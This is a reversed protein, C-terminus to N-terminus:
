KLAAIEEYSLNTIFKQIETIPVGDKLMRRAINRSSQLMAQKKTVKKIEKIAEKKEQEKEEELKRLAELKEEEFLRGVKTM